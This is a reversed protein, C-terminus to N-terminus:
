PSVKFIVSRRRPGDFECLYIDQWTGLLLEGAEFPVQVSPGTLVAKMHAAANDECHGWNDRWQFLRGFARTLDRKLAADANEQIAVGCTTHPIFITLVGDKLDCDRVVSRAEATINVWDDRDRTQVKITTM